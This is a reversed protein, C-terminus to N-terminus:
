ERIIRYDGCVFERSAPLGAFGVPAPGRPGCPPPTSALWGSGAKGSSFGRRWSRRRGSRRRRSQWASPASPAGTSHMHGERVWNNGGQKRHTGLNRIVQPGKWYEDLGFLSFFCFSSASIDSSLGDVHTNFLSAANSLLTRSSLPIVRMTESRRRRRRYSDFYPVHYNHDNIQM